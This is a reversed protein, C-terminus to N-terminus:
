EAVVEERFDDLCSDCYWKGDIRVAMEQQVPQGCEACKPLRELWENQERDRAEWLDYNDPIM